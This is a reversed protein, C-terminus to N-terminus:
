KLLIIFDLSRRWVHEDDFEHLDRASDLYVDYVEVDYGSTVGQLTNYVSEALVVVDGYGIGSAHNHDTEVAWVDVQVRFERHPKNSQTQVTGVPIIGAIQYTIYPSTVGPPAIGPFCRGSVLGQLKSYISTEVSM